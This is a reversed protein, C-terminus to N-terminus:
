VVRQYAEIYRDGVDDVELVLTDGDIKRCVHVVDRGIVQLVGERISWRANHSFPGRFDADEHAMFCAHDPPVFCLFV